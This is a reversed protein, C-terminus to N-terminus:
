LPENVIIYKKNRCTVIYYPVGNKTLYDLFEPKVIAFVRNNGQFFQQLNTNNSSLDVHRGLYFPIGEKGLINAIVQDNPKLYKKMDASLEKVPQFKQIVPTLVILFLAFYFYFAIFTVMFASRYTQKTILIIGHIVASLILTFPFLFSPKYLGAYEMPIASKHTILILCLILGVALQLSIGWLINRRIKVKGLLPELWLAILLAIPPFFSMAYGPLKTGSITFFIFPVFFWCIIFCRKNDGREKLLQKFAGPISASWPMFGFFIILIYYLYFYWAQGGHSEIPTTFRQFMHYGFHSKLFASGYRHWIAIYWPLSVALATIMGYLLYRNFLDRWSKRKKLTQIIAYTFGIGGPLVLAVPGKTLIGLGIPVGMLWLYKPNDEVYGRYFLYLTWSIFFTLATDLLIMQSELFYLFSSGLMLGAVFGVKWNFVRKGFLFVIYIGLLGFFMSSLRSAFETVGFLHYFIASTWFTLPPKDFRPTYNYYTGIWDNRIYMQRAFESHVGEDGEWLQPTGLFFLYLPIFILILILGSKNDNWFKKLKMQVNM